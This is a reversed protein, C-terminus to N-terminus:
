GIRLKVELVTVTVLGLLTDETGTPHARNILSLIRSFERVAGDVSKGGVESNNGDGVSRHKTM